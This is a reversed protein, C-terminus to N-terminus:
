LAESFDASDPWKVSEAPQLEQTEVYEFLPADSDAAEVDFIEPAPIDEAGRITGTITLTAYTLFLLLGMAIGNTAPNSGFIKVASGASRSFRIKSGDWQISYFEDLILHSLFGAAVGCAMLARVHLDDSHYGLFTLEGAIILAPISHFMGRHVTFRGLAWPVAFRVFAWTMLAFLMTRDTSMGMSSAHQMLLMPAFAAMLTALERVPRGSQADLDPLMGALWTLCSAVVAQVVGFGGATVAAAGYAVGLLGSVTIHERYGAMQKEDTALQSWRFPTHDIGAASSQRGSNNGAAVNCSRM